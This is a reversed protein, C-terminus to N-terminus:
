KNDAKFLCWYGLATNIIFAIGAVLSFLNLVDWPSQGYQWGQNLWLWRAAISVILMIVGLSLLGIGKVIRNM